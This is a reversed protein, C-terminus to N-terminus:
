HYKLLVRTGWKDPALPRSKVTSSGVLECLVPHASPAATRSSTTPFNFPEALNLNQRIHMLSSITHVVNQKSILEIPSSGVSVWSGKYHPRLCARLFYQEDHKTENESIQGVNHLLALLNM